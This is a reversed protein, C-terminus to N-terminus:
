KVILVSKNVNNLVKNSVSGLFARTFTGQGRRGMIILDIDKDEALKIIEGAVDGVKYTTTVNGPYDKFTNLANKLLEEGHAINSRQTEQYIDQGLSPSIGKVNEVVTVIFIDSNKLAGYEKAKVLAKNSNESGDIAVLVKTM